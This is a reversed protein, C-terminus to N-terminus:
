EHQLRISKFRTQYENVCEDYLTLSIQTWNTVVESFNFDAYYKGDEIGSGILEVDEDEADWTPSTLNDFLHTSKYRFTGIRDAAVMGTILWAIPIPNGSFEELYSDNLEIPPDGGDCITSVTITFTNGGPNFNSPFTIRPVLSTGGFNGSAVQVEFDWGEAFEFQGFFEAGVFKCTNFDSILSIDVPHHCDDCVINDCHFWDRIVGIVAGALAGAIACPIILVPEDECITGGVIWGIIIGLAINGWNCPKLLSGWDFSCIKDNEGDRSSFESPECNGFEWIVKAEQSCSVLVNIEKINLSSNQIYINILSDIQENFNNNIGNESIFTYLDSLEEKFTSSLGEGVYNDLWTSFDFNNLNINNLETSLSDYFQTGLEAKLTTELTTWEALSALALIDYEHTVQDECEMEGSRNFLKQNEKHLKINEKSCSSLILVLMINSIGVFLKFIRKM